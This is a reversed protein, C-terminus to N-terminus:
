SVAFICAIQAKMEGERVLPCHKLVETGDGPPIVLLKELRPARAVRPIGDHVRCHPLYPRGAPHVVTATDHARGEEDLIQQQRPLPTEFMEPVRQQVGIELAVREAPLVARSAQGISVLEGHDHVQLEFDLLKVGLAHVDTAPDRRESTERHFVDVAGPSRGRFHEFVGADLEPLVVGPRHDLKLRCLLRHALNRVQQALLGTFALSRAFVGVGADCIAGM